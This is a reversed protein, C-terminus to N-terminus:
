RKRRRPSISVISDAAQTFAEVAEGMLDAETIEVMASIGDESHGHYQQFERTRKILWDVIEGARAGPDQRSYIGYIEAPNWWMFMGKDTFSGLKLRWTYIVLPVGAKILSFLPQIILVQAAKAPPWYSPILYIVDMKAPYSAILEIQRSAKFELGGEDLIVVTKLHGNPMLDVESPDDAWISRNNSVLRYGDKLFYEALKYALSSKYGGTRGTIWVMRYDRIVSIVSDAGILGM